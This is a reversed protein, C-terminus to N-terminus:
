IEISPKLPINTIPPYGHDIQRWGEQEIGAYSVRRRANEDLQTLAGTKSKVVIDMVQGSEDTDEGLGSSWLMRQVDDQHDERLDENGIEFGGVDGQNLYGNRKAADAFLKRMKGAHQRRGRAIDGLAYPNAAFEYSLHGWV